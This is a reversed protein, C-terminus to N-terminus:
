GSEGREKLVDGTHREFERLNERWRHVLRRVEASAYADVKETLLRQEDGQAIRAAGAHGAASALTLRTGM